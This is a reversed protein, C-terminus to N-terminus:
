TSPPAPVYTLTICPLAQRILRALQGAASIKLLSPVRQVLENARVAGAASLALFLQPASLYKDQDLAAAHVSPQVVKLPISVTNEPVVTELLERVQSDLKGFCAGLDDHEYSPLDRPQIKMSFTSLSGALALMTEFLAAPHGRRTEYVHRLPPLYSNITYLLWFSAVDAIGFDALSQNRQRRMGSLQSSKSSLIEILRRAISMLYESAEIDILPPIFQTDLQYDGTVSRTLRAVRLVTSGETSEGEFVIRVNKRAVQIPRESRGTTEDRRLLEEARYRTDRDRQAASVNHGGYRYEPIALYVDLTEQDPSFAGELQKPPPTPDSLPMDFLLGDPFIGAAGAIAFSGSALAERAIELRGFGWPSFVLSSLQFELLDELFRDQTQFHQPSLLVGKTWLVPQTQRM